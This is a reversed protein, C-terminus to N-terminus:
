RPGAASSSCRPWGTRSSSRARRAAEAARSLVGGPVRVHRHRRGARHLGIRASRRATAAQGRPERRRALAPLARHRPCEAGQRAGQPRDHDPVGGARPQRETSTGTMSSCTTSSSWASARSVSSGARERPRAPRDFPRGDPRHVAPHCGDGPQGRRLQKFEPEDIMGRRIKESPIGAQESLIRTALQEASMELSFFGVVAGDHCPDDPPM